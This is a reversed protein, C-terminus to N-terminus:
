HFHLSVNAKLYDLCVDLRDIMNLFDEQLVLEEGPLNLMKTAGELERFYELRAGIAETVEILHKQEDLMTECALQLARSNEEVYRYNAEMESLLGRSEDLGELVSECTSLHRELESLYERYVQEQSHEISHEVKAFWDHFQQMSEIPTSLTLANDEERQQQHHHPHTSPVPTRFGNTSSPRPSSTPLSSVSAPSDFKSTKLHSLPLQESLEHQLQLYLPPKAVTLASLSLPSHFSVHPPLPRIQAAQNIKQVSAIESSSLPSLTDWDEM